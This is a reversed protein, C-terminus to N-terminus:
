NINVSFVLCATYTYRFMAPRERLRQQRHFAILIEYESHTVTAKIIWCAICVHGIINVDTTQRFRGYKELLCSKRFFTISCLIHKENETFNQRSCKENQSSNLAINGYMYM